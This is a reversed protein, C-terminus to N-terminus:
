NSSSRTSSSSRTTGSSTERIARETASSPTYGASYPSGHLATYTTYAYLPGDIYNGNVDDDNFEPNFNDLNEFLPTGSKFNEDLVVFVDQYMVAQWDGNITSAGIPLQASEMSEIDMGRMNMALSVIKDVSMNTEVCKSLSEVLAPLQTVDQALVGKAIAKILNRQNLTRQYDGMAYAGQDLPWGHRCRALVLAQEGNLLVEDGAPLIISPEVTNLNEDMDFSATGEPVEVTVGGLTDVLDLFGQFYVIAYYNIKIDFIDNLTSVLLNYGGYEIVSNIKGYGHGDIKVRLDRPISIIDVQQAKEDVRAVMISDSREGDNNEDVPEWGERADSGMLLVYYPENAAPAALNTIDQNGRINNAINNYWLAVAIGGCALVVVLAIAIGLAIKKGRSMGRKRGVYKNPAYEEVTRQAQAGDRRPADAHGRVEARSRSAARNQSRSRSRVRADSSAREVDQRSRRAGSQLENRSGAQSAPRQRKGRSGTRDSGGHAGESSRRQASGGQASYRANRQSGPQPRRGTGSRYGDRAGHRNRNGNARNRNSRRDEGMVGRKTPYVNSGPMRLVMGPM